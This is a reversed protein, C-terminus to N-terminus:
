KDKPSNSSGEDLLYHVAATRQGTTVNNLFQLM